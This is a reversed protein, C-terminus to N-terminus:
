FSIGAFFSKRADRGPTEEVHGLRVNSSRVYGALQGLLKLATEPHGAIYTLFAEHDIETVVVDTAAHASASRMGRDIIAMEGFLANQEVTHLVIPGTQSTKVIEVSGENLVYAYGGTEGERFILEGRPYRRQTSM